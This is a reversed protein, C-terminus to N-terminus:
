VNRTTTPLNEEALPLIHFFINLPLLIENNHVFLLVKNHNGKISSVSLGAGSGSWHKGEDRDSRAIFL